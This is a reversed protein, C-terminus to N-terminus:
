PAPHLNPFTLRPIIDVHSFHELLLL